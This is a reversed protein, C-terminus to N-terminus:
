HGKNGIVVACNSGGFGVSNCLVTANKVHMNQRLPTFDIGDIKDQFGYTQPIFGNKVAQIMLAIENTGSAGLTHGIFPKVATVATTTKANKFLIDIAKAESFNNNESGTAHAKIVDLDAVCLGAEDLANQMTKAVIVGDPNTTTESYNDSISCSGLLAFDDDRLPKEELIIASCGEGLIIGDSRVDFPKYVKSKSILMLSEFGKYTTKNYLEIGVVLARKIKKAQIMKAATIMANVSSTCATLFGLPAYNSGVIQKIVDGVYGYGVNILPNANKAHLYGEHYQENQGMNMSTSGLFVHLEGREKQGYGVEEIAAEIVSRLVDQLKQTQDKYGLQLLYSGNQMTQKLFAEYGTNNVDKVAQICQQKTEGLSCHLASAVIFAKQM